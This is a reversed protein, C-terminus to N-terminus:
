SELNRWDVLFLTLWAEFKIVSFLLGTPSGAGMQCEWARRDVFMILERRLRFAFLEWSRLAHVWCNEFSAVGYPQNKVSSKWVRMLDTTVCVDAIPLLTNLVYIIALQCSFALEQTDSTLIHPILCHSSLYNGSLIITCPIRFIFTLQKLKQFNYFCM